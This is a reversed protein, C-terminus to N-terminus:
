AREMAADRIAEKEADLEDLRANLKALDPHDPSPPDTLLSAAILPHRRACIWRYEVVLSGYRRVEADTMRVLCYTVVGLRESHADPYDTRFGLSVGMLALGAGTIAGDATAASASQPRQTIVVVMPARTHALAAATAPLTAIDMSTPRTPVLVVDAAAAAALTADGLRPPTDIIVWGYSATLAALRAPTLMAATAAIVDAAGGEGWGLASRQPDADIVLVREGVAQLAAAINTALTTKGSGGKQSAITIIPM